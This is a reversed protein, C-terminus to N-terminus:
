VNSKMDIDILEKADEAPVLVADSPHNKIIKRGGVDGTLALLEEYYKKGFICPNGAIGEYSLAAISKESSQFSRILSMISSARLYPQDCVGFMVGELMPEQELAKLLGLQLSLSIGLEPERNIVPLFGYQPASAQIEDYQTVIIKPALPMEQMLRLIHM